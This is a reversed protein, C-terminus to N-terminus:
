CINPKYVPIGDRNNGVFTQSCASAAKETAPEDGARREATGSFAIVLLIIAACVGIAVFIGMGVGTPAAVPAAAPAPAPAAAPPAAVAAPPAVAPPPAINRQTQIYQWAAAHKHGQLWGVDIWSFVFLGLLVWYENPVDALKTIPTFGQVVGACGLAVWLGVLNFSFWALWSPVYDIWYLAPSRGADGQGLLGSFINFLVYGIYIASSYKVFTFLFIGIPNARLTEIFDVPVIAAAALTVVAAVLTVITKLM